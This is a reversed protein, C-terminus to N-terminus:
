EKIRRDKLTDCYVGHRITGPIWHIKIGSEAAAVPFCMQDRECGKKYYEAWLENFKAVAPTNRRMLLGCEALRCKPKEAFAKLQKRVKTKMKPWRREVEEAEQEINQRTPHAFLALDDDEAMEALIEFPSRRLWVHADIYLSVPAEMVGPLTDNRMKWYRSQRRRNFTKTLKPTKVAVPKWVTGPEPETKGDTICLYDCDPDIVQPEVPWPWGGHVCTYVPIRFDNHFDLFTLMQQRTGWFEALSEFKPPYHHKTFNGGYRIDVSPTMSQRSAEGPPEALKIKDGSKAGEYLRKFATKLREKPGSLQSLVDGAERHRYFGFKCFRLVNRNYTIKNLRIGHGDFYGPPYLVDHEALYVYPFRAVNLGTLIQEYISALCRPKEGVTINKVVEPLGPIPFHSVCIIEHGYGSSTLLQVVKSFVSEPAKNDTYLIISAKV